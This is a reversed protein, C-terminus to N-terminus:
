PEKLPPEWRVLAKRKRENRVAPTLTGISGGGERGVLQM